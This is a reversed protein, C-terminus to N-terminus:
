APWAIRGLEASSALDPHSPVVRVTFGYRGPRYCVFPGNYRAHGDGLDDARRM